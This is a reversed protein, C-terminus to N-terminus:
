LRYVQIYGTLTGEYKNTVTFSGNNITFAFSYLQSIVAWTGDSTMGAVTITTSQNYKLTLTYESHFRTLRDTISIVVNGAGDYVELGYAM